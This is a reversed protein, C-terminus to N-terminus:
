SLANVEILFYCSEIAFNISVGRPGCEASELQYRPELTKRQGGRTLLFPAVDGFNGVVHGPVRDLVKKHTM